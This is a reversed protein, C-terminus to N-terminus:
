LLEALRDYPIVRGEQEAIAWLTNFELYTLRLPRGRVTVLFRERDIVLEGAQIM